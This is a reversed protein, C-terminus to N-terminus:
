ESALLKGWQSVRLVLFSVVSDSFWAWSADSGSYVQARLAEQSRSQSRQLLLSLEIKASM